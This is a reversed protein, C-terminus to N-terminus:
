DAFVLGDLGSLGLLYCSLLCWALDFGDWGMGMKASLCAILLSRQPINHTVMGAWTARMNLSSKRHFSIFGM